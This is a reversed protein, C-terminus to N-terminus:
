LLRGSGETRCTHSEATHRGVDTRGKTEKGGTQTSRSHQVEHRPALDDVVEARLAVELHGGDEVQVALLQGGGLADAHALRLHLAQELAHLDGAGVDEREEQAAQLHAAHAQVVPGEDPPGGVVHEHGVATFIDEDAGVRRQAALARAQAADLVEGELKVHLGHRVGHGRGAENLSKAALGRKSGCGAENLASGRGLRTKLQIM